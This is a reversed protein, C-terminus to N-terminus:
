DPARADLLGRQGYQLVGQAAVCSAREHRLLWIKRELGGGYGVLTGDKGIVRHCPIVIAIPNAGNAAAVARVASPRGIESAIASYSVTEGVPIRSLAAWVSRQFETGKPAVEIAELAHLDGEFYARVRESVENKGGKAPRPAARRDGFELGILTRERTTIVLAGVPTMLELTNM